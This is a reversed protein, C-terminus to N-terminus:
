AILSTEPVHGGGQQERERGRGGEGEKKEGERAGEGESQGFGECKWGQSKASCRQRKARVPVSARAPSSPLSSALWRSMRTAARVVREVRAALPWRASM